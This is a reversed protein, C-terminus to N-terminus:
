GGGDRLHGASGGEFQLGLGGSKEERQGAMVREPGGLAEWRWLEPIFKGVCTLDSRAQVPWLSSHSGRTGAAMGRPGAWRARGVTVEIGREWGGGM